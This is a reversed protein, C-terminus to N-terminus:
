YDEKILDYSLDVFFATLIGTVQAVSDALPAWSNHVSRGFGFQLTCMRKLRVYYM